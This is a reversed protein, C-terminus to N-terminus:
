IAKGLIINSPNNELLREAYTFSYRHSLEEYALSLNSTRSFMNHADSAVVDALENGFIWDAFRERLGGCVLSNANMQIICGQDKLEIVAEANRQLYFYRDVHAIIPTYGKNFFAEICENMFSFHENQMFEILVYNTNNITILQKPDMKKITSRTCFNEAGAFLKIGVDKVKPNGAFANFKENYVLNDLKDNPFHPTLVVAKTGNRKALELLEIAEDMSDAGDDVEPLIHTHIDIIQIM